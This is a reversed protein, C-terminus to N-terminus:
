IVINGNEDLDAEKYLSWYSAYKGVVDKPSVFIKVDRYNPLLKEDVLRHVEWEVDFRTNPSFDGMRTSFQETLNRDYEYGTIPPKEIQSINKDILKERVDEWEDGYMLYYAEEVELATSGWGGLHFNAWDDQDYPPGNSGDSYDLVNHRYIYAYNMVSHYQGWTERYEQGQLFDFTAGGLNYGANDVGEFYDNTLGAFHGLEHLLSGAVAVRIGRPTPLQGYGIYRILLEKASLPTFPTTWFSIADYVNGKAPHQYGGKHGLLCYIFAGKREDPFYNNYYQLIMGSDQSLQEYHPLSQGGGNMPSNPWGDDFFAKINHQAYREILGQKSEEYFVHAPDALGTAQMHDVEVYINEIYPDAFYDALQYERDNTISDMDPDLHRHDDWKYPNYGWKWEWFLPIGDQDADKSVDDKTEDTNLINVETWYPIYDDDYDPQYLNFWIEFTDGLYYGYGDDDRFSDDGTWRGTRYCYTVTFSDKEVDQSRLGFLGKKEREVITLTVQSTEQGQKATRVVKNGQFISDWTTFLVESKQKHQQIDKSIYEMGDMESIFYFEPTQRWSLGRSLLRDLLGRHRIRLIELIVAQNEYPAIRDDVVDIEDLFGEEKLEDYTKTLVEPTSLSFMDKKDQESKKTEDPSLNLFIMIGIILTVAIIISIVLVKKRKLLDIKPEM